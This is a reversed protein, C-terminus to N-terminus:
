FGEYISGNLVYRLVILIQERKSVDKTEDVVLAYDQCTKERVTDAMVTLLNNQIDPSMYTANAPLAAARKQLRTDKLLLLEFLRRFNGPNTSEV